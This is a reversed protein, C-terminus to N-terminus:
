NEEGGDPRENHRFVPAKVRIEKECPRPGALLEAPVFATRQIASGGKSKAMLIEWPILSLVNSITESRTLIVESTIKKFSRRCIQQAGHAIMHM